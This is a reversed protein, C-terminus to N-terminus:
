PFTLCASRDPYVRVLRDSDRGEKWDHPEIAKFDFAAYIYQEECFWGPKEDGIIILDTWTDCGSCSQMLRLNRSRAYREVDGRTMGPKLVDSLGKLARGYRYERVQWQIVHVCVYLVPILGL